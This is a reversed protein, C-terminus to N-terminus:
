PWAEIEQITTACAELLMRVPMGGCFAELSHFGCLQEMGHSFPDPKWITSTGHEEFYETVRRVDRPKSFDIMAHQALIAGGQKLAYMASNRLESKVPVRRDDNYQPSRMPLAYWRTLALKGLEPEHAVLSVECIHLGYEFSM